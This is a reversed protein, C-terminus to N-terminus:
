REFPLSIYIYPMDWGSGKFFMGHCRLCDFNIQETSNHNANLFIHQYDVSHGGSTWMAYEVSHCRRCNNLVELLQEESMKLNESKKNKLHNVVMMGKEKMSHLGNSLATGHCEKCKLNRHVSKLQSNVSKGIEHCSSCTRDPSATDWFTYFSSFAVTGVILVSSITLFVFKTLISM